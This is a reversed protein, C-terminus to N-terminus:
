IGLAFSASFNGFKITYNGEQEKSKLITSFTILQGNESLAHPLETKGNTGSFSWEVEYENFLKSGITVAEFVVNKSGFEVTVTKNTVDERENSGSVGKEITM